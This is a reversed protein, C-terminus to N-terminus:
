NKIIKFTKLESKNDIVKLFYIGPVFETMQVLTERNTVTQNVLLKGQMDFLEFSLNNLNQNGTNLNIFATSPNPYLSLNIDPNKDIGTTVTIVYPQQVGENSSGGSGTITTYPVQGISIAASGGTGTIDGGAAPVADQAKLGCLGPGTIFLLTIKVKKLKM